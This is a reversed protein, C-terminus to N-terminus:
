KGAEDAARASKARALLRELAAFDGRKAATEGAEDYIVRGRADFVALTPIAGRYYRRVLDRQDPSVDDLDVVLFCADDRHKAYLTVFREAERNTNYCHSTGFFVFTPRTTSITGATRNRAEIPFADSSDDTFSLGAALTLDTAGCSEPAEGM